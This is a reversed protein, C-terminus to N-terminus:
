NMTCRVNSNFIFNMKWVIYVFVYYVNVYVIMLLTYIAIISKLFSRIM